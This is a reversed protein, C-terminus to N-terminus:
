SAWIVGGCGQGGGAGCQPEALRQAQPAYGRGGVHCARM